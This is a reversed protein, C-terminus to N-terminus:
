FPRKKEGHLGARRADGDGDEARFAQHGFSALADAAACENKVRPIAPRSQVRSSNDSAKTGSYAEAKGFPHPCSRPDPRTYNEYTHKM